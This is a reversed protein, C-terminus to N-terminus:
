YENQNAVFSEFVPELFGDPAIRGRSLSGLDPWQTLQIEANGLRFDRSSGEAQSLELQSADDGLAARLIAEMEELDYPPVDIYDGMPGVSRLHIDRLGRSLLYRLFEPLHSDNIGRVLIMGITPLMRNELIHDLAKLKREACFLNDIAKYLDDRLGGNMSLYITRLGAAKLESVYDPNALKLGNTLVIPIHGLQRVNAIIEPLDERMTPEAGVLRIRHRRTLKGLVDYLWEVPLDPLNRVPIYCNRCAMNCRHTIDALLYQFPSDEPRYRIETPCYANQLQELTSEKDTIVQAM